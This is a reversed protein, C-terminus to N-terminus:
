FSVRIELAPQDSLDLRHQRVTFQKSFMPNLLLVCGFSCRFPHLSDVFHIRPPTGSLSDMLCITLLWTSKMFNYDSETCTFTMDLVNVLIKQECVYINM